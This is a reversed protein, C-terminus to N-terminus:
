IVGDIFTVECWGYGNGRAIFMRNQNTKYCFQGPLDPFSTGYPNYPNNFTIIPKSYTLQWSLGYTDLKEYVEVLLPNPILKIAEWTFMFDNPYGQHEVPLSEEDTISQYNRIIFNLRQGVRYPIIKPLEFIINNDINRREPSVIIITIDGMKLWRGSSNQTKDLPKLCFNETFNYYIGNVMVSDYNNYVPLYTPHYFCFDGWEEVFIIQYDLISTSPIDKIDQISLEMWNNPM